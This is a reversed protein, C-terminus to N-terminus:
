ERFMESSGDSLHIRERLIDGVEVTDIHRPNRPKVLDAPRRLPTPSLPRPFSAQTIQQALATWADSARRMSASAKPDSAAEAKDVWEAAKRQCYEATMM